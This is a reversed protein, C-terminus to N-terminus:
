LNKDASVSPRHRNGAHVLHNSESRFFKRIWFKLNSVSKIIKQSCWIDNEPSNEMVIPFGITFYVVNEHFGKCVMMKLLFRPFHQWFNLGIAWEFYNLRYRIELNQCLCKELAFTITWQACAMSVSRWNRGVLFKLFDNVKKNVFIEPDTYGGIEPLSIELGWRVSIASSDGM